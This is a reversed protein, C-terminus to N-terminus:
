KIRKVRMRKNTDPKGMRFSGLIGRKIFVQDGVKVKLRSSDIQRWIQGNELSMTLKGYSGEIIKAVKSNMMDKNEPDNERKALGFDSASAKPAVPAVPVPAAQTPASANVPQSPRLPMVPDYNKDLGQYQNLNKVVTDYCVLRKLANDQMSCSNLASEITDAHVPLTALLLGAYLTKKM